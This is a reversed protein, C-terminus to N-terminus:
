SVKKVSKILVPDIPVDSMGNQVSTKVAAIKDVVDLGEVVKGFVAYGNGDFSPYDLNSNDKLNIFFQCTASNPNNTRAMAVSGRANKLGNKSELTIPPYSPTKQRMSKDADIVFGGGQIVFGPVIRHFITGNFFGDTMYKQFNEVTIPAKEPYLEMKINGMSTEMLVVVKGKAPASSKAPAKADDALALGAAGCTMLVGLLLGKFM